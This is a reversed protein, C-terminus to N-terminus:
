APRWRRLLLASGVIAFVAFAAIRRKHRAADVMAGAPLQAVMFTVTGISLAQGIQGQTWAQSALYAAIFPGFGTQVNAVFFSLGDM